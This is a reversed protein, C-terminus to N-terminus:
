VQFHHFLKWNRSKTMRIFFEIKFFFNKYFNIAKFKFLTLYLGPFHSEKLTWSSSNRNQCFAWLLVFMGCFWCLSFWCLQLFTQKRKLSSLPQLITSNLTFLSKEFCTNLTVFHVIKHGKLPSHPCEVLSSVWFDGLWDIYGKWGGCWCVSIAYSPRIKNLPCNETFYIFNSFM